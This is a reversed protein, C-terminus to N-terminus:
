TRETQSWAPEALTESPWSELPSVSLTLGDIGEVRVRYGAKIPGAGETAIARWLAGAVWVQGIPDIPTRVDGTSGLLEEEGTAVPRHRAVLARQGIAVMGGGFALAVVVVLVPDVEPANDGTGFLLLGGAILAGVGAVGLLGGTPLHAEAIILGIGLILLVVGIAAVPLQVTGFIGLLLSVAGVSGPLITGPAFFELTIGVFGILLLLFAVNPNVLVQLLDYQFPMDRQEVTLGTTDLTGAKPGKVQFGNLQSLLDEQDSAVLDILNADLAEASTVNTAERVMQEALDPNRGHVTALARVFASADNTIKRGLTDGIDAGTSTIPSASGINTEPAMAAVDAAQTVFLGASAARSGNPSVYVVVPMPAAVIDKVMDRMSSDLGGPTDMRIIVLPADAAAAEDLAHGIWDATAPSIEGSLEISPVTTTDALAPASAIGIAAVIAVLAALLTRLLPM